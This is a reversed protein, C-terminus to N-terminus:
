LRAKYRVIKNNEDYKITYVWRNELIKINDPHDVLDWVKREMMVNIEKDMADHWKSADRSRIAQKYCNPITVEVMLAQQESLDGEKQYDNKGNPDGHAAATAGPLTKSKKLTFSSLYANEAKELDQKMLQLRNAELILEAEIKVVRFDEEKWRYIQQVTSRARTVPEFHDKLIKWAAVGDTTETILNKLDSSINTYILTYCRDKRLQLDLKEKYTAEEDPQEPKTQIIFQWYGYHMLLVQMDHKWTNWNNPTLVSIQNNFEMDTVRNLTSAVSNMFFLELLWALSIVIYLKNVSMRFFLRVDLARKQRRGGNPVRLVQGRAHGKRSSDIRFTPSRSELFGKEGVEEPLLVMRKQDGVYDFPAPVVNAVFEEKRGYVIAACEKETTCYDKEADSFKKSLYLIPHEEGRDNRQALVIGIGTDSADKQLIFQREFDPAYLVPNTSLKEKLQVFSEQCESTWNINEKKSKGKLLETLPAALSSFMPIYQRYYGAIGLFARFQTKTRPVPFDLITQVKLQAPSRKRLGVVHGLYKVSDQAFKCKAPKITLRANQIRELVKDIHSIHDDLKRQAKPTLSIQWYGKTLDFLTIYKAAAVTEIRHEINPLPYFQTRIVENLKRYHICPRPDRGSTEVLIMPSAYDSEGIETVQYKLMKRIEEQLLDTQRASIRYPKTRIPVYNILEIDNEVLHTKRHETIEDFDFINSNSDICPFNEDLENSDEKAGSNIM